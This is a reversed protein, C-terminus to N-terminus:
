SRNLIIGLHRSYTTPPFPPSSPCPFPPLGAMSISNSSGKPLSAAQRAEQCAMAHWKPFLSTAPKATRTPLGRTAKGGAREYVSDNTSFTVQYLPQPCPAPTPHPRDALCAGGDTQHSGAWAWAHSRLGTRRGWPLGRGEGCLLLMYPPRPGWGEFDAKRGAQRPRVKHCGAKQPPIKKSLLPSLPLLSLLLLDEWCHTRDQGHGFHISNEQDEGM